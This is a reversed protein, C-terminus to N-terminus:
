KYAIIPPDSTFLAVMYMYDEQDPTIFLLRSALIYHELDKSLIPYKLSCHKGLYHQCKIALKCGSGNVSMDSVDVLYDPSLTAWLETLSHVM